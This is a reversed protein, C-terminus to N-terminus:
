VDQKKISGVDSLDLAISPAVRNGEEMKRIAKETNKTLNDMELIAHAMQPLAKQRFTAVDEMAANIDVFAQKLTEINLQTSSAQKQIAVGQTKLQRSTQAILNDTTKNVATIKDLVIRQNALAMAVTVAVNLANVTVNLSRDVGKILEKNNRIIIEIALVGQQNVALQQQLDQTRQRLPFLLEERIFNIRPDGPEVERELAYELKQDILMGLKIAEELEFTLLRMAKQDQALTQNDRFLMDQGDQLSRMIADIVTQASEFKTFYRKLPKGVGPIMGLTRSFWGAEFDFKGPDLDEVQVKLNVLANAVPGGDEGKSALKRIPEKLMASRYAARKQTASGLTEVAAVDQERQDLKTKDTPDFDLVHQIFEDAKAEVAADVGDEVSLASPDTLGLEKKVDTPDSIVLAQKKESM